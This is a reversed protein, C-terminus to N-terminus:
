AASGPKPTPGVSIDRRMRVGYASSPQIKPGILPRSAGDQAVCLDQADAQQAAEGGQRDDREEAQVVQRHHHDARGQQPDHVGTRDVDHEVPKAHNERGCPLGPKRGPMFAPAKLRPAPSLKRTRGATRTAVDDMPSALADYM